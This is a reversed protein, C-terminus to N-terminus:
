QTLVVSSHLFVPQSTSTNWAKLDEKTYVPQIDIQEPTRWNATIEAEKQWEKGCKAAIGSHIDINKFNVRAM